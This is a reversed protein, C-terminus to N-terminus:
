HREDIDPTAASPPTVPPSDGTPAVDMVSRLADKVDATPDAAAATEKMSRKLEEAALEREIEARVSQWSQRAKRLLAGATRAAGPLREPGLVLLAVVAILGIEGMGVDFM